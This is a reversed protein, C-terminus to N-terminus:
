AGNNINDKNHTIKRLLGNKIFSIFSFFQYENYEHVMILITKITPSKEQYVMKSLSFLFPFM